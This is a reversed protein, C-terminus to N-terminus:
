RDRSMLNDLADLQRGLYDSTTTMQAMLTDLATFQNRYRREVGELRLELLDRSREIASVNSKAGAVISDILGDSEVFGELMTDLRSAFGEDTNSFFAEVSSPTDKMATALISSDFELKGTEANSTVGLQSVYSYSGLGSTGGNLIGSLQSDISRILSSSVGSGGLTALQSKVDNYANVFSSVASTASSTDQSISATSQGVGTLNLTLGNIADNISNDSRTIAVGDVVLSADLENETALLVDDDDRNLMAFNFTSANIAGGYSLQVRNDYGTSGSTMVLTQNGSDGTILGVTIGTSNTEVNIATQIEEMTKATSLDLVFSDSGVTLTLEDGAAGGFTTTSALESSGIKHQQALRDVTVSYSSTVANTESSVTFVETDSSSANTAQFTTASQLSTMSTQLASLSGKLAGYASIGAQVSAEKQNLRVLPQEEVAMLKTIIGNVDLGSGLGPSAISAM